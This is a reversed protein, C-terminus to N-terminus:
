TEEELKLWNSVNKNKLYAEIDRFLEVEKETLDIPMTTESNYSKLALRYKKM